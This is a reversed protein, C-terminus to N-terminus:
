LVIHHIESSLFDLMVTVALLDASGGPSINRAIFERDMEEVMEKGRPTLMGGADLAKAAYDMVYKLTDMDHRALINTDENTTMLNLLTQVLIDNLPYRNMSKLHTYVPLSCSRVTPFGAEVEGRIGKIEYKLFIREGHTLDRKEKISCLERSCLGQTMDSVTECLREISPKKPRDRMYCLAAAACLIGMSFIMGKHTNAGGTASYMAKEADLGVGRLNEFLIEPPELHSQVGMSACKYFYPSLAASSAMFSFFDMDRHAGNNLRDVLGPKPASSVEYLLSTVAYRRITECLENGYLM